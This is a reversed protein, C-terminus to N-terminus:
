APIIVITIMQTPIPPISEASSPLFFVDSCVFSSIEAVVLVWFSALVEDLVEVVDDEVLENM